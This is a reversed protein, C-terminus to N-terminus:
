KREMCIGTAWTESAASFARKKGRGVLDIKGSTYNGTSGLNKTIEGAYSEEKCIISAMLLKM